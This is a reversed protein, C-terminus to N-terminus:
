EASPCRYSTLNISFTIEAIIYQDKQKPYGRQRGAIGIPIGTEYSRDQLLGATSPAITGDSQRVGPFKDSGIYTKSVDDIYDTTTFRHTIELGINMRDNIAYKIGVGFPFCFGMTSYPKRDPYASDGQGETGLPRLMVKQGDLFAYPDYSFIGAGLTIYPTWSHYPDGPVFKFFNFDGQLALEFLNTNFSLNRRRQFDNDTNYIDSYGLQTFHASVRLATYNGFQKRFFAGVALKPRNVKATTNLDGFYHAAGASIGIEGEHVINEWQASVTNIGTFSALLAIIAILKKM